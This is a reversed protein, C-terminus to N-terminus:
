EAEAALLEPPPAAATERVASKVVPEQVEPLASKV